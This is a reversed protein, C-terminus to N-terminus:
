STPTTLPARCWGRQWWGASTHWTRWCGRAMRTLWRCSARHGWYKVELKYLRPHRFGLSPYVRAAVEVGPQTRHARRQVHPPVICPGRRVQRMRPYDYHRAYASAGAVVLKPRVAAAVEDMKDYDITGTQENLRYAFSEFFVSV